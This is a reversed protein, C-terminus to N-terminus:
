FGSLEHDADASDSTVSTGDPLTIRVAPMEGEPRPPEVFAAACDLMGGFLKVSKASVVKGTSVDVLAYARDGVIGGTTFEAEDLREGKMSKVPFRWLEKVTGVMGSTMGGGGAVECRDLRLDYKM